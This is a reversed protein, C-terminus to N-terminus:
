LFAAFRLKKQGKKKEKKKVQLFYWLASCFDATMLCLVILESFWLLLWVDAVHASSSVESSSASLFDSHMQRSLDQEDASLPQVVTSQRRRYQIVLKTVIYCIVLLSCLASIGSSFGMGWELAAIQDVSLMSVPPRFLSILVM